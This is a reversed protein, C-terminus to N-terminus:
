QHVRGSKLSHGGALMIRLVMFTVGLEQLQDQGVARPPVRHIDTLGPCTWVYRVDRVTMTDQSHGATRAMQRVVTVTVVTTIPWLRLSGRKAGAKPALRITDRPSGACQM